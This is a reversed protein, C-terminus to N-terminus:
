GKLTQLPEKRTMVGTDPDITTSTCRPCSMVRQLRVQGILLEDWSDEAFASCGSIVMNPRFREATLDTAMKESLNEVSPASKRGKMHTEFHVLRLSKRGGLFLSIWSAAEDGCDRGQIGDGFVLLLLNSFGTLQGEEGGGGGGGGGDSSFTLSVLVLRPEQTGIVMRGQETVVMWHRDRLEGDKLGMQQCEARDVSVAKASKLPYILLKSLHGVPVREEGRLLTYLVMLIVMAGAAGLLLYLEQNPQLGTQLFM